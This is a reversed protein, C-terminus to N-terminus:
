NGATTHASRWCMWSPASAAFRMAGSRFICGAFSRPRSGGCRMHAHFRACCTLRPLFYEAMFCVRLRFPRLSDSLLNLAPTEFCRFPESFKGIYESVTGYLRPSVSAVINSGYSTLDCEFPLSLYKRADPSPKSIVVRNRKSVFDAPSAGSDIASQRIATQLIEADTM